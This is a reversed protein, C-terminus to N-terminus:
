NLPIALFDSLKYYGFISLEYKSTPLSGAEISTLYASPKTSIIGKGGNRMISIAVVTMQYNLLTLGNAGGISGFTTKDIHLTQVAISENGDITAPFM